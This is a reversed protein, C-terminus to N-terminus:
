IIVVNHVQVVHNRLDQSHKYKKPCRLCKYRGGSKRGYDPLSYRWGHKSKDELQVDVFDSPDIDEDEDEKESSSQEHHLDDQVM